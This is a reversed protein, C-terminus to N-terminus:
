NFFIEASKPIEVSFFAHKEDSHIKRCVDVYQYYFIGVRIRSAVVKRIWMLLTASGFKEM